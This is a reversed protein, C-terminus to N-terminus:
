SIYAIDLNLFVSLNATWPDRKLIDSWSQPGHIRKEFNLGIQRDM